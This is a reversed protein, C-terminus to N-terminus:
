ILKRQFTLLYFIIFLIKIIPERLIKVLKLKNYKNQFYYEGFKFNSLRIFNSKCSTKTSKGNDHRAFANSCEYINLKDSDVIRKSLDEDEWYFFFNEDFRGIKKFKSNEALFIAGYFRNIKSIFKKKSRNNFSPISIVCDENKIFANKLKIISKKNILVDAQTCLFFKTKVKKSLFNVGKAFGHNKNSIKYYTIKPLIKTIKKKTIHDNSQDLILINFGKYNKLNPIKKGPTKYLLLIISIDSNKIDQNNSM